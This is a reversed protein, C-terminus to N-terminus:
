GSIPTRPTDETPEEAISGNVKGPKEKRFTEVLGLLMMYLVMVLFMCSITFFLQFGRNWMLYLKYSVMSTAFMLILGAARTPREMKGAFFLFPVLLMVQYYYTPAVLFFTPVYSYAMAEYDELKWVCFFSILLVAAQIGWWYVKFDEFVQTLGRGWFATGKYSMLFVYKFGVRWASIGKNHLEIKGLFERWSELGGAYIISAIVLILVTITFSAWYAFYRQNISRTTILDWLFKAGMGFVFIVPFIRALAAYASLAGAAVYHKKKLMCVAMVLCMVWDLRLFASRLTYHQSTLYHTGLMVIMLLAVRHDFAWWVCLAAALILFADLLALLTPGRLSDTSVANSLSGGIVTWVPTANYGKDKLMRSWLGKTVFGRFFRVDRVFEEWREDTFLGKIAETDALATRIFVYRYTELDRLKNLSRHTSGSEQDAVVTARYLNNYGLERAYKAGLYYHYLEYPNMYRRERWNPATYHWVALNATTMLVLSLLVCVLRSPRRQIFLYAIVVAIAMLPVAYKFYALYPSLFSVPM